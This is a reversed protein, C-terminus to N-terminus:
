RGGEKQKRKERKKRVRKDRRKRRGKARKRTMKFNERGGKRIDLSNHGQNNGPEQEERGRGRGVGEKRERKEKEGGKEGDDDPRVVM